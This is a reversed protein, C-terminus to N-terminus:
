ITKEITSAISLADCMRSRPKSNLQERLCGERKSQQISLVSTGAMEMKGTNANTRGIM